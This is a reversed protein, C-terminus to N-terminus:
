KIRWNLLKFYRAKTAEALKHKGAALQKNYLANLRGLRKIMKSQKVKM